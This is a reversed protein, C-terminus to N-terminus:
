AFRIGYGDCIAAIRAMDPPGGPLRSLEEFMSEIHGPTIFVLASAPGDNSARFSHPVDRPAYVTAGSATTISQDAVTFELAGALVHFVEDERTHVHPPIGLGAPVDLRVLSLSDGTASRRMLMTHGVGLVDFRRSEGPQVIVPTLM